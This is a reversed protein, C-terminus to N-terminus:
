DSNNGSGLLRLIFLFLNLFDLYLSIAAHVYDDYSLRAMIQHTDYVIFLSFIITGALAYLQSVVFSNFFLNAFLGWVLLVLISVFLGPGLFDFNIRSQFTFFTLGIFVISTIAFAELVIIGNGSAQYLTCIAGISYSELMTFASLWLMNAPSSHAYCQLIMLTAFSGGIATWYTWMGETGLWQVFGAGGKMMMLSSVAVTAFLQTGLISYVKRVFGKRWMDDLASVPVKGDATTFSASQAFAQPFPASTATQAEVDDLAQPPRANARGFCFHLALVAFFLGYAIGVVTLLGTAVPEPNQPAPHPKANANAAAAPSAQADADNPSAATLASLLRAAPCHPYTCALPHPQTITTTAAPQAQAAAAAAATSLLAYLALTTTITKM